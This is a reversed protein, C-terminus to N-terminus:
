AQTTRDVYGGSELPQWCEVNDIPCGSHVDRWIGHPGLFALCRHGPTVIRVWQGFRPLRENVSIFAPSPASGSSRTETEVVRHSIGPLAEKPPVLAEPSASSPIAPATLQRATSETEM